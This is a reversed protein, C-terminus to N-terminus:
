GNQVPEEVKKVIIRTGDVATVEVLMNADLWQGGSTASYQTGEIEVSGTPRFVNMTRGQKGILTLYQENISNYGEEGTLRDKLTMKAWLNRSPFVKLFLASSAGGMLFGVSVLAGYILTPAPVALAVIMLLVGLLAVTGDTIVKGDLVILMLGAVYLIVVWFGVDGSLHYSFYMAMIAIGLIAFIGKVRVLLEGILFLTGLFVVLFGISASDLWEM